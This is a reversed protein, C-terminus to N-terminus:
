FHGDVGIFGKKACEEKSVMEKILKFGLFQPSAGTNIGFMFIGEKNDTSLAIHFAFISGMDIDSQYNIACHM